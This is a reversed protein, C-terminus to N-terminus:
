LDKMLRNLKEVLVSDDEGNSVSDIIESVSQKLETHRLVFGLKEEMDFLINESAVIADRVAQRSINEELGIEALSSDEEYYKHMINQQKDTLMNGYFDMLM